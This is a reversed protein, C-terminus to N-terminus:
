MDKEFQAFLHVYDDPSMKCGPKTVFKAHRPLNARFWLYLEGSPNDKNSFNLGRAQELMKARTVWRIM